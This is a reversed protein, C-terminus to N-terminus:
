SFRRQTQLPLSLVTSNAGDIKEIKQTGTLSARHISKKHSHWTSWLSFVVYHFTTKVHHVGSSKFTQGRGESPLARDLQALPAPTYYRLQIIWSGTRRLKSRLRFSPTRLPSLSAPHDLQGYPTPKLNFYRSPLQLLTNSCSRETKPIRM